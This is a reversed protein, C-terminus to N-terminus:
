AGAGCLTLKSSVTFAAAPGVTKSPNWSYATENESQNSEKVGKRARKSSVASIVGQRFCPASESSEAHPSSHPRYLPAMPPLVRSAMLM